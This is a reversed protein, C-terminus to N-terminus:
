AGGGHRTSFHHGPELRYGWGHLTTIQRSYTGVKARLRRIHVDVTREGSFEHGWVARLLQLRTFAVGPNEVFHLLLDFERRTLRIPDADVYVERAVLDILVGPGRVAVDTSPVTTGSENLISALRDAVLNAEPGDLVFTFTLPPSPDVITM